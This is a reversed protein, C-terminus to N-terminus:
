GRADRRAQRRAGQAMSSADRKLRAPSRVSPRDPTPRPSPSDKAREARGPGSGGARAAALRAARLEAASHRAAKALAASVRALATEFVEAKDRARQNRSYAAGRAAAESVRASAQRRYQGVHKNRVRRVRTLLELLEDEDLGAVTSPETERLITLEADTMGQVHPAM